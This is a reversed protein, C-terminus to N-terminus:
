RLIEIILFIIHVQIISDKRKKGDCYNANQSAKRKTLSSNLPQENDIIEEEM